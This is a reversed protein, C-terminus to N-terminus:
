FLKRVMKKLGNTKKEKKESIPTASSSRNSEEVHGNTATGNVLGEPVTHLSSISGQNSIKRNESSELKKDGNSTISIRKSRSGLATKMFSPSSLKAKLLGAAKSGKKTPKIEAGNSLVSIETSPLHFENEFSSRKDGIQEVEKQDLSSLTDIKKEIQDNFWGTYNEPASDPRKEIFDLPGISLSPAEISSARRSPLSDPLENLIGKYRIVEIRNDGNTAFNTATDKKRKKKKEKKSVVSIQPDEIMLDQYNGSINSAIESPRRKKPKKILHTKGGLINTPKESSLKKNELDQEIVEEDFDISRRCYSIVLIVLIVNVCMFIVHQGLTLLKSQWSDRDYLLSEVSKSLFKIEERLVAIEELRKSDREEGKRSEESMTLTARELARQMEEVQKKYRRSLEELYQGSLSM